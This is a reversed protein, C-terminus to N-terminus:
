EARLAIMPDVRTARRAPLWCSIFAVGILLLTVLALTQYDVGQSDPVMAALGLGALFSLVLGIGAGILALRLNSGLVLWLVDRPRAGLAMRVGIEPTRLVVVRAIVGYVGLAALFLGLVGFGSFITTMLDMVRLGLAAVERATNLLTVPVTPDLEGLIRRMPEVMEAPRSSRVAVTVYNWTEQALPIFLQFPTSQPTPNAAFGVDAFVGVIEIPQADAAGVPLLRQGVPDSDPFLARAMSANILAVRPAELGDAASFTRGNLLPIGLTSLYNSEVGNVFARPELGPAPPERGAVTYSRTTLFAFMPTTWGVTADEVGPIARLREQLQQYFAYSQEGTEYRSTPLNLIGQTIPDTQWGPDRDNLYQLGRLFFGACALLLLAAAFQVSVLINRFRHQSPSGTTGRSGGKLVDSVRVQSSFWAPMIGFFVGAALSALVAFVIVRWDLALDFHIPLDATLRTVIWDNTWIAILVGLAGGGLGLLLSETLVPLILKGRSAGMAARIGFERSRASARALQLNALNGCVILLVFGALAVMMTGLLMSSPNRSAAVLTIARLGDDQQARTRTEALSRALTALRANAQEVTLDGRLRAVIEINSNETNRREADTLAIPALADMPGWLLVESFSEPLVGVIATDNGEIKVTRGVINPDGGFQSQWFAHSLIIVHHGPANEAPSFNRGLAPQVGLAQLFGSSARLGNIALPARGPESMSFGWGIVLGTDAFDAVAQQLALADTANHLAAPEQPTTRNIRVLRDREPFPLPRLLLTNAVSFMSTNLGIGIALTAIAIATFGPSKGLLRFALRLNM